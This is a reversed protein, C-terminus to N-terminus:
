ADLFEGQAPVVPPPRAVSPGFVTEAAEAREREEAARRAQEAISDRLKLADPHGAVIRLVRDTAGLAGSFDGMDAMVEAANLLAIQNAPDMEIIMEFIALAKKHRGLRVLTRGKRFWPESYAPPVRVSLYPSDPNFILHSFLTHAMNIATDYQVIAQELQGRASFEDGWRMATELEAFQRDRQRKLMLGIVLVTGGILGVTQHFWEPYVLVPAAIQILAFLPALLLLLVGNRWIAFYGMRERSGQINFAALMAGLLMLGPNVLGLWGYTSWSPSYYGLPYLNLVEHIPVLMIVLLGWMVGAARKKEFSSMEARGIDMHPQAKLLLLGIVAINAFCMALNVILNTWLLPVAWVIIDVLGLPILYWFAKEMLKERLARRQEPPLSRLSPKPPAPPRGRAGFMPRSVPPAARSPFPAPGPPGPQPPPRGPPMEPVAVTMGPPRPPAPAPAPEEEVVIDEQEPPAQPAGAPPGEAAPGEGFYEDDQFQPEGALEPAQPSPEQEEFGDADVFDGDDAPEPL